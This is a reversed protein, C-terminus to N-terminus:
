DMNSDIIMGDMDEKETSTIRAFAVEASAELKPCIRAINTEAVAPSGEVNDPAASADENYAM